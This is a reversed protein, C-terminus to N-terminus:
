ERSPHHMMDWVSTGQGHQPAVKSISSEAAAPFTMRQGSHPAPRMKDPSFLRGRSSFSLGFDFDALFGLGLNDQPM